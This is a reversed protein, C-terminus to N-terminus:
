IHKNKSTVMYTIHVEVLEITSSSSTSMAKKKMPPSFRMLHDIDSSEDSVSRKTENMLELERIEADLKKEEEQLVQIYNIADKIISAKDM